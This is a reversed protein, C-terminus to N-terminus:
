SFNGYKYSGDPGKIIVRKQRNVKSSILSSREDCQSSSNYSSSRQSRFDTDNSPVDVANKLEM